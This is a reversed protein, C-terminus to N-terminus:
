LRVRSLKEVKAWITSLDIVSADVTETWGGQPMQHDSLYVELNVEVRLWYLLKQEVDYARKATM